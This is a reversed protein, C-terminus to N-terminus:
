YFVGAYWNAFGQWTDSLRYHWLVNECILVLLIVLYPVPSNKKYIDYALFCGVITMAAWDTYNIGDVINIGYNTGLGRAFGPGIMLLSTAIMYRMHYASNKRNIMALAYFLGFAVPGRLDLVMFMHTEALPTGRAINNVYGQHGVLFLMV